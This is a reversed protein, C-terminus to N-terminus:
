YLLDDKNKVLGRFSMSLMALFQDIFPRMSEMSAEPYQKLYSFVQTEYYSIHSQIVAHLTNINVDEKLDLKDVMKSFYETGISKMDAYVETMRGALKEPPNTMAEVVLPYIDPHDKMFQLEKESYIKLDNIVRNTIPWNEYDLEKLTFDIAYHICAEYLKEKSEYYHFILGKSTHAMKAIHNTSAQEFGKEAFEHIAAELISKEKSELM